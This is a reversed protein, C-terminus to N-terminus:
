IKPFTPLAQNQWRVKDGRVQFGLRGEDRISFVVDLLAPVGADAHCQKTREPFPITPHVAPRRAASPRPRRQCPCLYIYPPCRTVRRLCVRAPRRAAPPPRAFTAVCPHAAHRPRQANPAIRRCNLRLTWFAAPPPRKRYNATLPSPRKKCSAVAPAHPSLFATPLFSAPILPPPRAALPPHRAAAPMAVHPPCRPKSSASTFLPYRAALPTRSRLATLLPCRAVSQLPCRPHPPRRPAAPPPLNPAPRRSPHANPPTCIAVTLTPQLLTCPPDIRTCRAAVLLRRGAPQLPRVRSVLPSPALTTSVVLSPNKRKKGSTKDLERCARLARETLKEFYTPSFCADAQSETVSFFTDGPSPPAPSEETVSSDPETISSDSKAPSAVLQALPLPDRQQDSAAGSPANCLLEQQSHPTEPVEDDDPLTTRKVMSPTRPTNSPLRGRTPRSYPTTRAASRRTHAGHHLASDRRPPTIPGRADLATNMNINVTYPGNGHINLVLTVTSPDSPMGININASAPPEM